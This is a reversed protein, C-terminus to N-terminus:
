EARSVGLESLRAAIDKGANLASIKKDIHAIKGDRDIYFTWRAAYGAVGLVGYANAAIKDPDSLVPFDADNVRAFETNTALDDTSLM